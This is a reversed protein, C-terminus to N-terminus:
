SLGIKELIEHIVPQKIEMYRNKADEKNDQKLAEEAALKKIESYKEALESDERLCDRFALTRIFQKDSPESIHIHYTHLDLVKQMFKRGENSAHERFEYGLDELECIVEQINKAPTTIYIDIIGKGGVEPIATSGVHYIKLDKVCLNHEINAKELEFLNVYEDTYPKWYYKHKYDSM